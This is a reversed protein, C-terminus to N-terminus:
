VDRQGNSNFFLGDSRQGLTRPPLTPPHEAAGRTIRSCLDWEFTRPWEPQNSPALPLVAGAAHM